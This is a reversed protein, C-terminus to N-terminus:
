SSVVVACFGLTASSLSSLFPVHLHHLCCQSRKLWVVSRQGRGREKNNVTNFLNLTM